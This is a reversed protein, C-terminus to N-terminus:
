CAKLSCSLIEWLGIPSLSGGPQGDPAVALLLYGFTVVVWM